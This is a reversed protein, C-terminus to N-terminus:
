WDLDNEYGEQVLFQGVKEKFLGKLHDDFHNKWDGAKGKRFFSGKQKMKEFRFREVISEINKDPLEYHQVIRSFVEVPKAKMEEYKVIISRTKDRNRQWSQIWAAWEPLLTNGFHELGSKIDKNKYHPHEVHWPTRKVYFVHSVAADRLDRYMVVYPIELNKLIRVNNASGPCHVKVIALAQSVKRFYDLSLEFQHSGGKAYGWVTIKPDPIITYGPFAGLMNELWTTGSKPLGAVFLIRNPYLYGFKKLSLEGNKLAARFRHHRSGLKVRKLVPHPLWKAITYLQRFIQEAMVM